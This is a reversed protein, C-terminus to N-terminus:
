VRIVGGGLNKDVQRCYGVGGVQKKKGDHIERSEDEM